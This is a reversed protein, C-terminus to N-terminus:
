ESKIKTGNFTPANNSKEFKEASGNFVIAVNKKWRNKHNHAEIAGIRVITAAVIAM